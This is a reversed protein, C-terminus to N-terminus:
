KKKPPTAAAGEKVVEVEWELPTDQGAWPPFSLNTFAKSICSGVAKGDYPPPVTVSKMHGNPGLVLSLTVKGWPGTAKGDDDKAAGCNDKVQRTARKLTAETAEKDYQDHRQGPPPKAPTSGAGAGTGAPVGTTPTQSDSDWKPAAEEKPTESADEAPKPPAGCAVAVLALVAM